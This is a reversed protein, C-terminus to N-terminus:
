VFVGKHQNNVNTFKCFIRYIIKYSKQGNWFIIFLTKKFFDLYTIAFEKTSLRWWIQMNLNWVEIVWLRLTWIVFYQVWWSNLM